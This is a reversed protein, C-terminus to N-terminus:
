TKRRGVSGSLFGTRDEIDMAYRSHFVVAVTMRPEGRKVPRIGLDEVRGSSRLEGTRVPVRSQAIRLVKHGAGLVVNHIGPHRTMLGRIGTWDPEYKV